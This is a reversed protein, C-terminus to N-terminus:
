RGAARRRDLAEWAALTAAYLAGFVAARAWTFDRGSLALLVVGAVLSTVLVPLHRRWSAMPEV